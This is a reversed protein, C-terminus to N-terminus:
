SLIIDLEVVTVTLDSNFSEFVKSKDLLLNTQPHHACYCEESSKVIM